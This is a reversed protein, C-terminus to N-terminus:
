GKKAWVFAGASSVKAVFIDISNNSSVLTTSGFTATGIFQGCIIANGQNDIAIGNSIDANSGGASLVWQLVGSSNYKAIFVDQAGSSTVSSTGFIATGNFFGTVFVNGSADCAVAYGRDVSGGGATVAWQFVGSNNTKTLFIDSSGATTATLSGFSTTSSIFGTTYSNGNADTAIDIAEQIASSTGKQIWYQSQANINFLLILVFLLYRKILTYNM